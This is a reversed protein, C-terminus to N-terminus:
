LDIRKNVLNNRVVRCPVGYALVGDSINKTVVSGMGIVTDKGIVIRDRVSCGVGLWSKEGIHVYGGMSVGPSLHVGDEIISDHDVNVKTNIICGCGIVTGANISANALIVTGEGISSMQSVVASGHVLSVLNFGIERLREMKELRISNDGLAVVANGYDNKLKELSVKSEEYYCFDPIKREEQIEYNVLFAIEDYERTSLVCDLVSRGHGGDGVIILKRM